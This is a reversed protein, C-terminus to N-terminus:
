SIFTRILFGVLGVTGIDALENVTPNAAMTIFQALILGVALSAAITLIGFGLALGIEKLGFRGFLATHRGGTVAALTLLPLGTFVIAPIVNLPFSPFPLPILLAFGVAVSAVVALWGFPSIEVPQGNYYPFDRKTAM